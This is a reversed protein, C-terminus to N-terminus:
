SRGSFMWPRVQESEFGHKSDKIRPLDTHAGRRYAVTALGVICTVNDCLTPHYIASFSVSKSPLPAQLEALGSMRYEEHVIHHLSLAPVFRLRGSFGNVVRLPAQPRYTFIVISVRCPDVDSRSRRSGSM